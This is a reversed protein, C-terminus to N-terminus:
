TAVLGPVDESIEGPTAIFLVNTIQKDKDWDINRFEYKGFDREFRKVEQGKKQQTQYWVPDIQNYFLVYVHPQDYMYTLIIKDVQNEYQKAIAIAQKYGYQWDKASEVPTHIYYMDLYYFINTTVLICTILMILPKIYNQRRYGYLNKWFIILGIATFLQYLPLYTLARVAHPTGTTLASAVPAVFLWWLLYIFKRKILTLIGLFVFPAEWLYLMGMDQAHHRLPADGTLFLFDLNFHDLYGKLIAISYVVRRNHIITGILDNNSQDFEIRKISEDLRSEPTLVTVSSFRARGLDWMESIFPILLLGGLLLSCIVWIRWRWIEKRFIITWGLLLVPVVLRPSHYSYFSCVFCLASLLYWKGDARAKMFFYIGATVWFLGVNAEFAVRSFQLHWPSIALLLTGLLGVKKGFINNILFYTLIVTAIGFIASPLRIAFENLGFIAVAPITAYAYFAPKYDEFSRISIPWQRGFEDKGTKLISYANYGLSTEDWDLSPPNIGLKYLRLFAALLIIIILIIRKKVM